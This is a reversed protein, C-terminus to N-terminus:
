VRPMGRVILLTNSNNNRGMNVALHNTSLIKESMRKTVKRDKLFNKPCM